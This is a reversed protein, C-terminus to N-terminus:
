IQLRQNNLPKRVPFEDHKLKTLIPLDDMFSGNDMAIHFLWLTGYSHVNNV